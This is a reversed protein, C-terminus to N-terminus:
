FKRYPAFIILLTSADDIGTQPAQMCGMGGVQVAAAAIAAARVAAVAFAAVAPSRKCSTTTLHHRLHRDNQHLM